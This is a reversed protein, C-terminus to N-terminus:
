GTRKGETGTGSLGSFTEDYSRNRGSIGRLDSIGAGFDKLLRHSGAWFTKNGRTVVMGRGTRSECSDILAPKEGEKKLAEVIALALPHESKLEAAYLIGKHENQWGADHLWGTVVPRGETVTGTKDLVVTDVKRMQELAVADKILIHSEQRKYVDRFFIYGCAM